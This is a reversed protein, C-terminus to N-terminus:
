QIIHRCSFVLRMTTRNLVEATGNCFQQKIQCQLIKKGGVGVRSPRNNRPSKPSNTKKHDPPKDGKATQDFKSSSGRGGSAAVGGRGGGASRDSPQRPTDTKPSSPAEKVQQQLSEQVKQHLAQVDLDMPANQTAAQASASPPLSKINAQIAPPPDFISPTSPIDLPTSLSVIQHKYKTPIMIKDGSEISSLDVTPWLPITGPGAQMLVSRCQKQVPRATVASYPLKRTFAPISETIKKRAEPFSINETYKIRVIEKERLWVSCSKDLASHDEGCSPCKPPGEKSCATIDHGRGSCYACVQYRSRCSAKGHGYKQCEHCRVPNPIYLDVKCRHYALKVFKPLVTQGFTLIYTHTYIRTNDKRFSIREVNVVNQDRLEECIDDVDMEFLAQDRCKVVGKSSNLYRHPAVTVAVTLIKDLTLIEQSQAKRTIEVLINGSKLKRISKPEGIHAYITKQIAFPSIRNLTLPQTKQKIQDTQQNDNDDDQDELKAKTKQEIVFFRPFVEMSMGLNYELPQSDIKRRKQNSFAM